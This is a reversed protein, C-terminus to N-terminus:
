GNSSSVTEVEGAPVASPLGPLTRVEVCGYSGGCCTPIRSAYSIAEDLDKCDLIYYGALQERTEAFPGDIILPKGNQVRVTTATNTRSLPEAAELIGKARTEEMVKFHGDMIEQRQQDSIQAMEDEKTYILLMYRM